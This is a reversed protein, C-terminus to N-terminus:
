LVIKRAELYFRKDDAEGMSFTKRPLAGDNVVTPFLESKEMGKFIFGISNEGSALKKTSEIGHIYDVEAGEHGKLYGDIFTQLTGVPLMSTPNPATIEGYGDACVFGFTQAAITSEPLAKVYARLETMVDNADVGFLVRYIPEFELSEDHINVIECLAFRAPHAARQEQTLTPKLNEWCAKATALSHNGDGVAFVLPKDTNQAKAADDFLVELATNVRAIEDQPLFKGLSHGSGLMLDFDYATDYAAAKNIIPEIVTRRPDDILVMIHPLEIPAGERIKVRPPIRELVTGETARVLTSSGKNYDYCELDIAGVLGRRIKGNKQTRELYIMSSVHETLVDSTYQAMARNIQPVREETQSLYLEPLTVRLTSPAGGVEHEVADWYEPESTYQDCAICSWARMAAADNAFRPLLIDAPYFCNKMPYEECDLTIYLYSLM